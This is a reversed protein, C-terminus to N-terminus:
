EFEIQSPKKIEIQATGNYMEIKGTVFLVDDYDIQSLVDSLKELNNEWIILTVRDESPYEYDLDIFTPSGDSEVSQYIEKVSGRVLVKEGVFDRAMDCSIAAADRRAADEEAQEKLMENREDATIDPSAEPASNNFFVCGDLTTSVFAFIIFLTFVFGFIGTIIDKVKDKKSRKKDM